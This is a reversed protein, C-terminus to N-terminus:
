KEDELNRLQEPIVKEEAHTWEELPATVQYFQKHVKRLLRNSVPSLGEYIVLREKDLEKLRAECVEIDSLQYKIEYLLDLSEERLWWLKNADRNAKKYLEQYNYDRSIGNILFVILSLITTAVQLWQEDTFLLAILGSSAVGTAFLKAFHVGIKAKWLHDSHRKHVLYHWSVDIIYRKVEEHLKTQLYNKEM